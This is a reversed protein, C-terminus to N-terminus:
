RPQPVHFIVLHVRMINICLFINNEWPSQGSKPFAVIKSAGRDKPGGVRTREEEAQILQLCEVFVVLSM